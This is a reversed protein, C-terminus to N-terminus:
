CFYTQTKRGKTVSFSSHRTSILNGVHGNFLIVNRQVTDSKHDPEYDTQVGISQGILGAANTQIQASAVAGYVERSMGSSRDAIADDTFM